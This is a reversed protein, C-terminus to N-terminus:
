PELLNGVLTFVKQKPQQMKILEDIKAIDKASFEIEEQKAVSLEPFTLGLFQATLAINQRHAQLRTFPNIISDTTLIADELLGAGAESSSIYYFAEDALSLKVLESAHSKAESYNDRAPELDERGVHHAAIESEAVVRHASVQIQNAIFQAQEVVRTADDHLDFQTYITSQNLLADVRDVESELHTAMVDTDNLREISKKNPGKLRILEQKGYLRVTENEQATVLAAASFVRKDAYMETIKDKLQKFEQTQAKRQEFISLPKDITAVLASDNICAGPQGTNEVM